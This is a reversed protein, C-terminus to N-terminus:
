ATRFRKKPCLLFLAMPLSALIATLWFDEMFRSAAEVGHSTVSDPGLGDRFVWIILGSQALNVVVSVSLFGLLWRRTGSPVFRAAIVAVVCGVVIFACFLLGILEM